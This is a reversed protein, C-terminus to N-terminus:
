RATSAFKSKPASPYRADIDSLRREYEEKALLVGNYDGKESKRKATELYITSALARERAEALKTDQQRMEQRVHPAWAVVFVAISSAVCLILMGISAAVIALPILSKKM